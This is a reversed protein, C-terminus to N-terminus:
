YCKLHWYSSESDELLTCPLLQGTKLFFTLIIEKQIYSILNSLLWYKNDNLMWHWVPISNLFSFFSLVLRGNAPGTNSANSMSPRDLSGGNGVAVKASSQVASNEPGNMERSDKSKSLITVNSLGGAVSFRAGNSQQHQTVSLKPPNDGMNLDTSPFKKTRHSQAMPTVAVTPMYSSYPSSAAAAAAVKAVAATAAIM